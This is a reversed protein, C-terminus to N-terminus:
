MWFSIAFMATTYIFLLSYQLEHLWHYPSGKVVKSEESPYAIGTKEDRVLLDERDPVTPPSIAYQVPTWCGVICVLWLVPPWGAHTLLSIALKRPTDNNADVVNYYTALIVAALVFGIYLLHLYAKCSFITVKLRQLMPARLRADRENLESSQSGTATFGAIKGGLWSPLLFSQIVCLAHDTVNILLLFDHIKISSKCPAMWMMGRADRQGIEYGSPLYVILEMIRSTLMSLFCFRILWILQELNSYPIMNGGSILVIPVTFLSLVLIITFLSSVTYVFGSARQMFSM